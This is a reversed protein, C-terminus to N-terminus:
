RFEISSFYHIPFNILIYILSIGHTLVSAVKLMGWEIMYTIWNQGDSCGYYDIRFRRKVNLAVLTNM